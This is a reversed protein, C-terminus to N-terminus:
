NTLKPNNFLLIYTQHHFVSVESYLINEGTSPHIGIAQALLRTTGVAQGKVVGKESVDTSVYVNTLRGGLNCIQCYKNFIKGYFFKRAIIPSLATFVINANPQPGGKVVMQIVSGVLISGNRPSLRLPQFVQLDVPASTVDEDGGSVTFGLKTDGM